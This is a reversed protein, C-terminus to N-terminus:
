GRFGLQLAKLKDMKAEIWKGMRARCEGRYFYAEADYENIKLAESFSNLAESYQKLEILARGRLVCAARGRMMRTEPETSFKVANAFDDAAQAFNKRDFHIKGREAFAEVRRIRGALDSSLDNDKFLELAQDYDQLAKDIENMRVFKTARECFENPSTLQHRAVRNAIEEKSPPAHVLPDVGVFPIIGTKALSEYSQKTLCIFTYFDGETEVDYFRRDSDCKALRENFFEAVDGLNTGCLQQRVGSADEFILM